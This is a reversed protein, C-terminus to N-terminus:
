ASRKAPGIEAVSRIIKVVLGYELAEQASLFKDREIDSEVQKVKQGTAEALIEIIRNKTKVMEEAHIEIDSATGPGDWWQM